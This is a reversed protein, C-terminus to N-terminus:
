EKEDLKLAFDTNELKIGATVAKAALSDMKNQTYAEIEGKAESITKDMQKNFATYVFSTNNVTEKVISDLLNMITDRDSKGITKKKLIEAITNKANEATQTNTQLQDQFEKEFQEVKGQFPPEEISGDPYLYELTIPLGEGQGFSTIAEAFQSYSMVARLINTTPHIWDKHLGRDLEAHEIELSILDSHKISSGFLARTGNHVRNFRIVAYSPHSQRKFEDAISM